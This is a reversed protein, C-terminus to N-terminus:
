DSLGNMYVKYRANVGGLHWTLEFGDVFFDTEFGPHLNQALKVKWKEEPKSDFLHGGHAGLPFDVSLRKVLAPLCTM